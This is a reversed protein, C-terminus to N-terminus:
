LYDFCEKRTILKKCNYRAFFIKQNVGSNLFYKWNISSKELNQFSKKFHSLGSIQRGKECFLIAM